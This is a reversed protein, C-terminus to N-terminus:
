KLSHLGLSTVVKRRLHSCSRSCRRGLIAVYEFYGSRIEIAPVLYFNLMHVNKQPNNRTSARTRQASKWSRRKKHNTKKKIKKEKKKSLTAAREIRKLVISHAMEGPTMKGRALSGFAKFRGHVTLKGGGQYAGSFM